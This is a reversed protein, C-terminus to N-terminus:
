FFLWMLQQEFFFYILAGFALFPVFPIRTARSKKTLFLYPACILLGATSGIMVSLWVGIPGLFSGILALLEFDGQGIGQKGTVRKFAFGIVLLLGYGIISGIFSGLLTVNLLGYAAALWGIPVLWLTTVQFVVMAQLDTRTSVILASFFLLYFLFAIIASSDKSLSLVLSNLNELGSMSLSQSAITDFSLLPLFIRYFLATFIGASGLEIIPYLSSIRAGCMRCTGRLVIWSVIPILDYWAIRKNCSPCKSRGFFLPKNHVLRFAVVNLFSGWCLGFLFIFLLVIM